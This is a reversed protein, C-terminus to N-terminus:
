YGGSYSKGAVWYIVDANAGGPYQAGGTLIMGIQGVNQESDGIFNAGSFNPIMAPNVFGYAIASDIGIPTVQPLTFVPGATLPWAFPGFATTDVDVTITNTKGDADAQYVNIINAQVGNLQPMGFQTSTVTPVTLRVTQGITFKHEVSLTIIAQKAQSIKTITRTPPYFYPDYPIVSYSGPGAAAVIAQMYELDFHTGDIVDITFDVGGLQQAGATNYIRVVMGSSLGATSAVLVRPPTANSISTLATNAGPINITNNYFNFAGSLAEANLANTSDTNKWGLGVGPAFGFQWYSQVLVGPDAAAGFQTLNYVYLWDVGSRLSIYQNNGNSVFTGQNTGSFVVSM